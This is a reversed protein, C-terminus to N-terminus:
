NVGHKKLIELIYKLGKKMEFIEEPDIEIQFEEELSVIINLHALSDWSEIHDPTINENNVQELSTNLVQQLIARVKEEM